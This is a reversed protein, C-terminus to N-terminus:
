SSMFLRVCVNICFVACVCVCVAAANAAAAALWARLIAGMEPATNDYGHNGLGWPADTRSRHRIFRVHEGQLAVPPAALARACRLITWGVDALAVIPM